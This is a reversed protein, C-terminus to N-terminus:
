TYWIGWNSLNEATIPSRYFSYKNIQPLFLFPVTLILFSFSRGLCILRFVHWELSFLVSMQTHVSIHYESIFSSWNSSNYCSAVMQHGSCTFSTIGQFTAREFHVLRCLKQRYRHLCLECYLDLTSSIRCTKKRNYAKLNMSPFSVRSRSNIGM